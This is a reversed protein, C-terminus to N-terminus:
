VPASLHGLHDFNKYTRATRLHVARRSGPRDAHLCLCPAARPADRGRSGRKRLCYPLVINRKAAKTKLPVRKGGRSLQYRAHVEEAAFDSEEWWLALMEMVRLGTFLLTAIHDHVDGAHKLLRTIEDRTLFRQRPEGAGPRERRLLKEVPSAVIFDHRAAYAFLGRVATQWGSGAFQVPITVSSM